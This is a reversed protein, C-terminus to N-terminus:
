NLEDEYWQKDSHRSKSLNGQKKNKRQMVATCLTCELHPGAGKFNNSSVSLKDSMNILLLPLLFM